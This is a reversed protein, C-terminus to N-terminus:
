NSCRSSTEKTPSNILIKYRLYKDAALDDEDVELNSKKIKKKVPRMRIDTEFFSSM